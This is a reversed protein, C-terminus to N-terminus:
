QGSMKKRLVELFSIDELKILKVTRGAKEVQISDDCNLTVVTDGDFIAEAEENQTSRRRIVVEIKAQDSLVVSRATLTHPALPTIMIMSAAPDIIPGGASLNYGTSGTPTSIIIGDASYSNLFRGNVRIDFDMVHTRGSRTIVIDNLALDELRTRNLHIAAGKVMMREEIHYEDALLRDLAMDIHDKDIEALYGLTGLNIGFLPIQLDSLDRAAQLVTGDGGLVIICEVDDAIRAPDTYRYSHLKGNEEKVSLSCVAGRAELYGKIRNAVECTPDKVFNTIIYFKKM